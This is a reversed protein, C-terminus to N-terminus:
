QMSFLLRSVRRMTAQLNWPGEPVAFDYRGSGFYYGAAFEARYALGM